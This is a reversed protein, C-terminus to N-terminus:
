QGNELVLPFQLLMIQRWTHRYQALCADHITAVFNAFDQIQKGELHEKSRFYVTNKEIYNAINEYQKLINVQENDINKLIKKLENEKESVFRIIENAIDNDIPKHSFLDNLKEEYDQKFHVMKDWTMRWQFFLTYYNIYMVAEDFNHELIRYYHFLFAQKDYETIQKEQTAIEKQLSEVLNKAEKQAYRKGKYEFFPTEIEGNAINQLVMADQANTFFHQIVNTKEKTFVENCPVEPSLIEKKALLVAKVEFQSIGRDDYFGQYAQPYANKEDDQRVMEGLEVPSIPDNSLGEFELFQAFFSDTMQIQLAEANEFLVWASEEIIRCKLSIENMKLTRDENSPHSAWQDKYVVNPQAQKILTNASIKPVGNSDTLIDHKDGWQKMLFRHYEYINPLKKQQSAAWAAHQFSQYMCSDSMEVKCLASISAENGALCVAMKDANYEMERSLCMYNRQVFRFLYAMLRKIVNSSSLVFWGTIRIAKLGSYLLKSLMNDWSDEAYIWNYLMLYFAYVYRGFHTSKQSFHGFEHALVSKFESINLTNVIGLGITLNKPSAFFFSLLQSDSSVSANVGRVIYVHKPMQNFSDEAVKRIFAFLHPQDKEFIEIHNEANKQNKIFIFKLMFVFIMVGFIVLGIAIFILLIHYLHNIVFVAGLICFYCVLASACLLLFYTVLFLFIAWAVRKVNTEFEAHPSLFSTDWTDPNPPYILKSKM